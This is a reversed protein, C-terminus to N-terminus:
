AAALIGSMTTHDKRLPLTAIRRTGTREESVFTARAATSTVVAQVNALTMGCRKMFEDGMLEACRGMDFIKREIPIASVNAVYEDGPFSAGELADMKATWSRIEDNLEKLRAVDADMAKIREALPGAEDVVARRRAAEQIAETRNYPKMISEQIQGSRMRLLTLTRQHLQSSRSEGKGIAAGTQKGNLGAYYRLEVIRRDSPPLTGIIARVRVAVTRQDLTDIVLDLPDTRMAPLGDTYEGLQQTSSHKFNRRRVSDMVAGHIRQKAYARFPVGTERRYSNAAQLLGFNAQCILDGLEVFPPLKQKAKLAISRAYALHENVLAEIETASRPPRVVSM